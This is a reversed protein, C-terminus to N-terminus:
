LGINVHLNLICVKSKMLTSDKEAFLKIISSHKKLDYEAPKTDFKSCLFLWIM